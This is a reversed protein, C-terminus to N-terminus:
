DGIKTEPKVTNNVADAPIDDATAVVMIPINCWATAITKDVEFVNAEMSLAYPTASVPVDMVMNFSYPSSYNIDFLPAPVDNLFFRPFASLGAQKGQDRSTVTVGTLKLTDNQIVYVTGGDTRANDFSFSIDVNPLDKDDDCSTAFVMLAVVPLLSLLFKRM